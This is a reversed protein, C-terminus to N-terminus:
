NCNCIPCKIKTIQSVICKNCFFLLCVLNSPICHFMEIHLMKFINRISTRNFLDWNITHMNTFLIMDIDLHKQTKVLYKLLKKQDASSKDANLLLICQSPSLNINIKDM